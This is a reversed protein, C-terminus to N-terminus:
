PLREDVLAGLQGLIRGTAGWVRYGEVPFYGYRLLRGAREEEVTEIPAGSLFRGLPPEVIAAVERPDPVVEPRKAAVAVVPTLRFGSVRVEVIELRGLIRVGAAVPDLGVEEAAERLAAAEVSVDNPEVAGGPFSVEGPHRLEGRPRETLLVHAEGDVGPHLLVLV